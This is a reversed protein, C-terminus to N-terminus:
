ASVIVVDASTDLENKPSEGRESVIIKQMTSTPTESRESKDGFYPASGAISISQVQLSNISNSNEKNAKVRKFSM